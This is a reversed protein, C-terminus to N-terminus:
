THLNLNLLNSVHPTACSCASAACPCVCSECECTTANCCAKAACGFTCSHSAAWLGDCYRCVARAGCEASLVWHTHTHTCAHGQTTSCALRDEEKEERDEHDDDICGLGVWDLRDGQSGYPEGSRHRTTSPQNEIVVVSPCCGGGLRRSSAGEGVPRQPRSLALTEIVRTEGAWWAAAGGRRQPESVLIVMLSCGFGFGFGDGGDDGDPSLSAVDSPRSSGLVDASALCHISLSALSSARLRSCRM